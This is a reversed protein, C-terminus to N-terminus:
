LWIGLIILLYDVSKAMVWELKIIKRIRSLSTNTKEKGGSSAYPLSPSLTSPAAM